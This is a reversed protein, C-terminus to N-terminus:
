ASFFISAFAGCKIKNPKITAFLFLSLRYVPIASTKKQKRQKIHCIWFSIEDLSASYRKQTQIFEAFHRSRRNNEPIKYALWLSVKLKRITPKMPWFKTCTQSNKQYFRRKIFEPLDKYNLNSKQSCLIFVTRLYM